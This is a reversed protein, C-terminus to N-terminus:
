RRLLVTDTYKKFFHIYKKVVVIILINKVTKKKATTIISHACVYLILRVMHINANNCCFLVLLINCQINIITFENVVFHNLFVFCVFFM